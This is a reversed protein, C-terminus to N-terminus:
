RHRKQKKLKRIRFDLIKMDLKKNPKRINRNSIWKKFIFNLFIKETEREKKIKKKSIGSLSRTRPPDETIVKSTM